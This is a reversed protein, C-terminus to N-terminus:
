AAQETTLTEGEVEVPSATAAADTAAEDSAAPADRPKAADVAAQLQAVAQDLEAVDASTAVATDRETIAAARLAGNEARLGAVTATLEAILGTAAEITTKRDALMIFGKTIIIALALVAGVLLIVQAAENM